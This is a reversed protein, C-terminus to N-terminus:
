LTVADKYMDTAALGRQRRNVGRFVCNKDLQVAFMNALKAFKNWFQKDVSFFLHRQCVFILGPTPMCDRLVGVEAGGWLLRLLGQACTM